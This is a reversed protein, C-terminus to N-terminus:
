SRSRDRLPRHRRGSRRGRAGGRRSTSSAPAACRCRKASLRRDAREGPRPAARAGGARRRAESPPKRSRHRCPHASARHRPGRMGRDSQRRTGRHLGAPAAPDDQGDRHPEDPDTGGYAADVAAGDPDQRPAHSWRRPRAAGSRRRYRPDARPEVAIARRGRRHDRYARWRDRYRCPARRRPPLPDPTRRAGHSMEQQNTLRRVSNM